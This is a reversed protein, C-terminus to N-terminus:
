AAQKTKSKKAKKPKKPSAKSASNQLHKTIFNITAQTLQGNGDADLKAKRREIIEAIKANKAETKPTVMSVTHRYEKRYDEIMKERLYEPDHRTRFRSFKNRLEDIVTSPMPPQSLTPTFTSVEAAMRTTDMDGDTIVPEDELPWPIEINLGSVYRTYRPLKSHESRETYPGAAYAHKVIVNQLKGTKTDELPIVHRIDDFSM